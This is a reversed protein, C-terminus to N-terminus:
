QEPNDLARITPCPYPQPAIGSSYCRNACNGQENPTHLARVRAVAAEAKAARFTASAFAADASRLQRALETEEAAALQEYLADLADDTITDVTHRPESV